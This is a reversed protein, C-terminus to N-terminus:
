TQQAAALDVADACAGRLCVFVQEGCQQHQVNRLTVEVKGDQTIRRQARVTQCASQCYHKEMLNPDAAKTFVFNRMSMRENGKCAGESGERVRGRVTMRGSIRDGVVKDEFAFEADDDHLCCCGRGCESVAAYTGAHLSGAAVANALHVGSFVKRSAIPCRHITRSMHPTLPVVSTSMLSSSSMSSPLPLLFCLVLYQRCNSCRVGGTWNRGARIMDLNELEGGEEDEERAGIEGGSKPNAPKGDGTSTDAQVVHTKRSTGENGLTATRRWKREAREEEASREEPASLPVLGGSSSSSSSGDDIIEIAPLPARPEFMGWSRVCGIRVGNDTYLNIEARFVGSAKIWLPRRIRASFPGASVPCGGVQQQNPYTGEWTCQVRDFFTCCLDYPGKYAIEEGEQVHAVKFEYSGNYIPKHLIGEVDLIMYGDVTTGELSTTFKTFEIEREPSCVEWKGNEDHHQLDTAAVDCVLCLFIAVLSLATMERFRPRQRLLECWVM